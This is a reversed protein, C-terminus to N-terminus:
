RSPPAHKIFTVRYRFTIAPSLLPWPPHRANSDDRRVIAYVRCWGCVLCVLIHAGMTLAQVLTCDGAAGLSGASRRAEVRWAIIRGRSYCLVGSVAWKSQISSYGYGVVLPIM